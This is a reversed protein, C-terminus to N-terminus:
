LTSVDHKISPSITTTKGELTISKNFMNEHNSEADNDSSTNSDEREVEISPVTYSSHTHNTTLLPSPHSPHHVGPSPSHQQLHSLLPSDPHKKKERPSKDELGTSTEETDNFDLFSFRHVNYIYLKYLRHYLVKRGDISGLEWISSKGLFRNEIVTRRWTLGVCM